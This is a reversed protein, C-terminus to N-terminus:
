HQHTATSNRTKRQEDSWEIYAQLVGMHYLLLLHPYASQGTSRITGREVGVILVPWSISHRIPQNFQVEKSMGYRTPQHVTGKRHLDGQEICTGTNLARLIYIPQTITKRPKPKSITCLIQTISQSFSIPPIIVQSIFLKSIPQLKNEARIYKTTSQAWLM